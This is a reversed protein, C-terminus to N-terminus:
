KIIKGSYIEKATNRLVKEPERELWVPGEDRRKATSEAKGKRFEKYVSHVNRGPINKKRRKM